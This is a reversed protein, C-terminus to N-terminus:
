EHDQSRAKVVQKTPYADVGFAMIENRFVCWASFKKNQLKRRESINFARPTASHEDESDSVDPSQEPEVSVLSPGKTTPQMAELNLSGMPTTSTTTM